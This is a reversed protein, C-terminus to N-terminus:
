GPSRGFAGIARENGSRDVSRAPLANTGQNVAWKLPSRMKSAEALINLLNTCFGSRYRRSGDVYQTPILTPTPCDDHRFNGHKIRESGSATRYWLCCFTM